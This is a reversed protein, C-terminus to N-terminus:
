QAYRLIFKDWSVAWGHQPDTFHIEAFPGSQATNVLRTLNIGGNATSYIQTGSCIFGEDKNFFHIDSGFQESLVKTFTSGGDTTRYVGAGGVWGHQNDVFQAAYTNPGHGTGMTFDVGGNITHGINNDSVAWGNLSDLFFVTRNPSFNSAVKSWTKGSDISRFLGKDTALYGLRPNVFQLDGLSAAGSVPIKQWSDGGNTTRHLANFSIAWGVQENLFFLNGISVTETSVQQRTWTLGGDTSKALFDGGAVWGTNNNVFFIDTLGTAENIM